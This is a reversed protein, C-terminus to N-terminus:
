EFSYEIRHQMSQVGYVVMTSCAACFFRDKQYCQAEFNGYNAEWALTESALSTQDGCSLVITMGTQDTMTNLLRGERHSVTGM